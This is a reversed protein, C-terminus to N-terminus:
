LVQVSCCCKSMAYASVLAIILHLVLDHICVYVALCCLQLRHQLVEQILVHCAPSLRRKGAFRPIDAQLKDEVQYTCSAQLTGAKNEPWCPCFASSAASDALQQSTDHKSDCAPKAWAHWTMMNAMDDHMGCYTIVCMLLRARYGVHLMDPQRCDQSTAHSSLHAILLMKAKCSESSYMASLM